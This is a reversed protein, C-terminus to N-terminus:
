AVSISKGESLDDFLTPKAVLQGRQTETKKVLQFAGTGITMTQGLIVCESVGEVLDKKMYFAADFLHDTTKEFSALQLVSDRMKALGFRTIGLVEGKYSMVDGLLQIHRPDVSMGHKSMTYDIENIICSRAAEIGLTEYVELVHNTKTKCGVVGDTAIVEKLGYGEVLLEKKGDDRINIVARSIDPLGKVVVKTLVRKLHQMRFFLENAMTSSTDIGKAAATKSISDLLADSVCVSIKNRGTIIVDELALKLKPAKVIALRIEDINLELQLREITELDVKVQLYAQNEKYVDQIYYVVDQLITKEIRGKVVRAAREDDENVLVANIIPTSITKSANIIEKIRPVGLTVNMSAVGAFHFTKLTMQTGPEGISQAGIAGVATGPEVKARNYKTASLELFKTVAAETIRYLQNILISVSHDPSEDVFSEPEQLLGPFGKSERLAALQKTKQFLFDKLTDYFTREADFQDIYEINDADEPNVINGLNDLRVLRDKLPDLFSDAIKMIEYPLLPKDENNFTINYAHDWTRKFNVPKADGEMDLPDLGDGGYTFQVVGSSSNRVTHDYQASLDELSKMLRRSMYGTEATKVATDVLGERGSIAHFLFEPPNLGSYFSNRVFGKSQPTKSNKLFHPLSRDQFGDPVRNGSIIQQGVVAVMQSVNLTSGKSGCTAMILPANSSPLEKICVGGVEERVKSLLGGIKAELTQEENCGPQTELKGHNFLKILEDCKKYAEEVMCEKERSLEDGPTVDNIGISFGRNGLYRACLKAMRNMANAAEHPGYDRLITYFVSHKKGDGLLSKDMVGSLIKSGRVIVFGDNPSMESPQGAPPPIFTKCKADLNINVNSKANPKILLSFVQKGTWLYAPKFISPPPLDFHEIGDSMSALIQVLSARDFFTDKHSILYSGTIFDQTAAIIPEGSKPTLLNNKVGMLNMAESRAEETQPVHLNMEDGDFDANYPTCVCENLRFTRWPRIKAFHSLISLRHLSPQRNFLVVDGDELHREVIDGIQLTNALKQRNGFRLNRRNQEDRKLLYNAGPHVDPGNLVLQQLKHKNYRTVKEPYTLVKAVRDPVAVEDIRLNPDPSIVTRGSFDVRKGSLNGRFRGQKGKLRQCFGRIPKSSKSGASGAASPLMSMNGADSNIYMAVSLQLYDWQEILNNISIGKEIGARILSSIWVIETLKVTLDDENSTNSDSMLVSPRICVPPAPVYRWLYMEPRGGRTTDIGLLECDSPDVQKFLNLVKLPNLDDYARKLFKELDPNNILLNDFDEYWEVKEQSPKKGIWRFTDHIVKLSAPGAGASAKKVVGNLAGCKLCRRQKKAQELIRKIIKMRRLNDNNPSRLDELAKRKTKEDLLVSACSKCITQLVQIVAKFYGVHFVPLALKIHGFHGHCTALNGHCTACEGSKSSVGMRTDLAGDKAPARGKELNFLNRTNVEVESQAIIQDSSLANFELGKIRKPAVDVVVEKM